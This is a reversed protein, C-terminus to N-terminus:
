FRKTVRFLAPAGAAGLALKVQLGGGYDIGRLIGPLTLRPMPPGSGAPARAASEVSERTRASVTQSVDAGFPRGSVGTWGAPSRRMEVAREGETTRVLFRVGGRASLGDYTVRQLTGPSRRGYHAVLANRAARVDEASVLAPEDDGDLSSRGAWGGLHDLDEDSLDRV